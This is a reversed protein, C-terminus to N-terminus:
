GKLWEQIREEIGEPSVTTWFFAKKIGRAEYIRRKILQYQKEIERQMSGFTIQVPIVGWISLVICGQEIHVSSEMGWTELIFKGIDEYIEKMIEVNEPFILRERKRKAAVYLRFAAYQSDPRINSNM